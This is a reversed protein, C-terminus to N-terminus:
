SLTAREPQSNSPTTGGSPAMRPANILIVM